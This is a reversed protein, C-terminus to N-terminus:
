DETMSNEPGLTHYVIFPNIHSPLNGLPVITHYRSTFIFWERFLWTSYYSWNQCFSKKLM